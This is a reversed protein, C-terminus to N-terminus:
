QVECFKLVELLVNKPIKSDGIAIKITSVGSKIKKILQEKSDVKPSILLSSDILTLIIGLTEKEGSLTLIDKGLDSSDLKIVGKFSAM